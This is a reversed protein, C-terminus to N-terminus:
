PHHEQLAPTEVKEPSTVTEPSDCGGQITDNDSSDVKEPSEPGAISPRMKKIIKEFKELKKFGYIRKVIEGNRDVILTTPLMYVKNDRAINLANNIYPEKIAHREVFERQLVPSVAMDIDLLIFRVDSHVYSEHLMKMVPLLEVCPKCYISGFVMVIINGRMDATNIERNDIFSFASFDKLNEAKCTAILGPACMLALLAILCFFCSGQRRLVNKKIRM